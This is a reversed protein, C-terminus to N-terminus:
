QFTTQTVQRATDVGPREDPTDYPRQSLAENQNTQLMTRSTPEGRNSLALNEAKSEETQLPRSDSESDQKNPLAPNETRGSGAPQRRARPVYM